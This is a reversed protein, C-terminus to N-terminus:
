GNTESRIPQHFTFITQFSFGPIAAIGPELNVKLSDEFFSSTM